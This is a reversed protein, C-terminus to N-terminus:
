NCKNFCSRNGVPAHLFRACLRFQKSLSTHLHSFPDVRTTSSPFDPLPVYSSKIIEADGWSSTSHTAWELLNWPRGHGDQADGDGRTADIVLRTEKRASVLDVLHNIQSWLSSDKRRLIKDHPWKLLDPQPVTMNLQRTIKDYFGPELIQLLLHTRTM